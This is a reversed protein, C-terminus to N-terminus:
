FNENSNWSFVLKVQDFVATKLV